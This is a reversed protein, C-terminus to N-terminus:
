VEDESDYWIDTSNVEARTKMSSMSPACCIEQLVLQSHDWILLYGLAGEDQLELLWPYIFSVSWASEFKRELAEQIALQLHGRKSGGQYTTVRAFRSTRHHGDTEAEGPLYQNLRSLELLLYLSKLSLRYLQESWTSQDEFLYFRLLLYYTRIFRRRERPTLHPPHQEPTLKADRRRDTASDPPLSTLKDLYCCDM